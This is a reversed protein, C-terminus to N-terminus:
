KPRPSRLPHRGVRDEGDQGVNKPEASLTVRRSSGAVSPPKPIASAIAKVGASCQLAAIKNRRPYTLLCRYPAGLASRRDAQSSTSGRVPGCSRPIGGLDRSFKKKLPMSSLSRPNHTSVLFGRACVDRKRENFRSFALFTFRNQCRQRRATSIATLMRRRILFFKILCSVKWWKRKM